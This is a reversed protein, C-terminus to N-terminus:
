SRGRLSLAFAVGAVIVVSGLFWSGALVAAGGLIAMLFALFYFVQVKTIATM